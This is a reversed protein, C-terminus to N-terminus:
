KKWVRKEKIYWNGIDYFRQSPDYLSKIKVNKIEADQAYLFETQDLFIVPFKAAVLNNFQEYAAERKIADTTARADVILKDASADAFGTLNYGPNKVQSSHWFLFPDPDAGFKQPFLLVDFERTKIVSDMLQKSPLINLTVQINLQKLQDAILQAAQSNVLTDNTAISIKFEQGRKTRTGTKADVTWGSADLLSKAKSIDTGSDITKPNEFNYFVLPSTPLNANDKFVSSIIDQRNITLSFAQRISQESLIKNNLNFFLVQYQPLSIRSVVAKQQEKELYLSSGLPTFGFGLIERSHFANLMDDENDYFKIVIQNIKPQGLYFKENASLTIQEVKGSPLKKIEKISYPGSGIAELNYKSLLFNQADVNQWIGKPVIPLILNNVFPGSINATTFKISTDSLKEVTTSEWLARLPSKFAQDKLTTITFIVDDATLNKGNHWVINKKLNVTYQKQDESIIPMSDALDPELKGNLNYKYLGSFVLKVLSSDPDQSALLPNVYIPQGILGESYIGGFTPAPVTHNIYFNRISIVLSLGAVFILAAMIIKEKKGMLSFVKRISSLRLTKIEKAGQATAKTYSILNHPFGNM